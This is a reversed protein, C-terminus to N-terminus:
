YQSEKKEKKKKQLNLLLQLNQNKNNQKIFKLFNNLSEKDKSYLKIYYNNTM